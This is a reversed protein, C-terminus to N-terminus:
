ADPDPESAAAAGFAEALEPNGHLKMMLEETAAAADGRVNLDVEKPTYTRRINLLTEVPIKKVEEENQLLKEIRRDVRSRIENAKKRLKETVLAAIDSRKKWETVTWRSVGMTNAIEENTTGDAILTALIERREAGQEEHDLQSIKM